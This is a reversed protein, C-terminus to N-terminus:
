VSPARHGVRYVGPYERLLAGTRLRHRIESLTVGADLLDRRTVNGHARNAIRALEREVPANQHRV